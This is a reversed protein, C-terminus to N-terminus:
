TFLASGGMCSSFGVIGIVFLSLLYSMGLEKEGKVFKIIMIILVVLSHLIIVYMMLLAYTLGAYPEGSKVASWTIALAILSYALMILLNIRIIKGFNKM